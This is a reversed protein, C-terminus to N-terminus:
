GAVVPPRYIALGGAPGTDTRSGLSRAEDVADMLRARSCQLDAFCLRVAQAIASRRYRARESGLGVKWKAEISERDLTEKVTASPM